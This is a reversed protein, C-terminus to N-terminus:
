SKWYKVKGINLKDLIESSSTSGIICSAIDRPRVFTVRRKQMMAMKTMMMMMMMKTMTMMMMMKTMTMMMMMKTMIIMLLWHLLQLRLHELLASPSSRDEGVLEDGPLKFSM